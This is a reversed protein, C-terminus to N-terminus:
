GRRVGPGRTLRELYLPGVITNTVIAVRKQALHPAILDARDLLGPGIHIPYSRDGLDVTLTQM